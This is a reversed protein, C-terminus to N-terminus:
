VPIIDHCHLIICFKFPFQSTTELNVHPIQRIKIRATSLSFSKKKHFYKRLSSLLVLFFVFSEVKMVFIREHHLSYLVYINVSRDITRQLNIFVLLLSWSLCFLFKSYYFRCGAIFVYWIVFFRLLFLM